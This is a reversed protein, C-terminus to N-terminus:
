IPADDGDWGAGNLGSDPMRYVKKGRSGKTMFVRGSNVLMEATEIITLDKFRYEKRRLSEILTDQGQVEVLETIVRLIAEECEVAVGDPAEVRVTLRGDPAPTFVVVAVVSGEMGIVGERDKDLRLTARGPRTRSWKQVAEVSFAAGEIEGLKAGSGRAWRGRGDRSKTVHDLMIVAAGSESIPKVLVDMWGLVDAAVNEDGGQRAIGRAVGDVVVLQPALDAVVRGLEHSAAVDIKPPRLYFFREAVVDPDAGLARLRSGVVNRNGEYDVMMVRGGAELIEAVAVLSIMTKGATPEGAFSHTLGPYILRAGDARTFMTPVIEPTEGRVVPSVDEFVLVSRTQEVLARATTDLIEQAADLQGTYSLEALEGALHVMRRARSLAKLRAAYSPIAGLSAGEGALATLGVVGDIQGALGAQELRGAVTLPDVVSGAHHLQQATDWIHGHIPAYFDDPGIDGALDLTAPYYLAAGILAQEILIDHPLVRTNPRPQATTTPRRTEVATM